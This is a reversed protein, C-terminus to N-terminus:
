KWGKGSTGQCEPASGFDLLESALLFTDMLIHWLSSARILNSHAHPFPFSNQATRNLQFPADKERPDATDQYNKMLLINGDPLGPLFM